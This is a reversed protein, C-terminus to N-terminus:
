GEGPRVKRVNQLICSELKDRLRNARTRLAGPNLGYQESLKRRHYMDKETQAGYFALIFVRDIPKLKALCDQLYELWMQRDISAIIETELHVPDPLAAAGGMLEELSNERRTRRSAELCLMRAVGVSYGTLDDIQENELKRGVRELAEDALDEAPSCGKWQFVKALRRRLIAYKEWAIAPQVDLRLLLRELGENSPNGGETPSSIM